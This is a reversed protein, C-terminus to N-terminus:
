IDDFSPPFIGVQGGPAPALRRAEGPAYLLHRVKQKYVKLEVQHRELLEEMERDKNRLEAKVTELEKKGRPAGRLATMEDSASRHHVHAHYVVVDM